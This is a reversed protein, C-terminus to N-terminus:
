EDRSSRLGGPAGQKAWRAAVHLCGLPVPEPQMKSLYVLLNL